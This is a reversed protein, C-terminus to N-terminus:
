QSLCAQREWGLCALARLATLVRRMLRTAAKSQMRDVDNMTITQDHGGNPVRPVGVM